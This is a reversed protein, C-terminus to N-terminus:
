GEPCWTMLAKMVSSKAKKSAAFHWSLIVSSEEKLVASEM